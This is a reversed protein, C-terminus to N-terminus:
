QDFTGDTFRKALWAAILRNAPGTPHFDAMSIRYLRPNAVLDPIIATVPVYDIKAADLAAKVAPVERGDDDWFIMIFKAQYKEEALQRARKVLGVYLPVPDFAPPALFPPLLYKALFASRSLTTILMSDAASHLNGHYAAVGDPALQYAPGQVAWTYAAAARRAHDAIATYIIYRKGKSLLPDPRGIELQRVVQHLGYTPVGMNVVNFRKDTMRSFIEPLADSDNLGMGFTFSDGMFLVNDAAPDSSHDTQRNGNADISYIVDYDVHEGVLKRSEGVVNAPLRFGLDSDSIYHYKYSWSGEFRNLSSRESLAIYPDLLSLCLGIVILSVAFNGLRRGRLLIAGYAGLVALGAGGFTLLYFRPRVFFTIAVVAAVVLLAGLVGLARQM